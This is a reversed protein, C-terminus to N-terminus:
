QQMLLFEMSETDQNTTKPLNVIGETGQSGIGEFLETHCRWCSTMIRLLSPCKTCFGCGFLDSLLANLNAM